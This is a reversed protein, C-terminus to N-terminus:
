VCQLSSHLGFTYTGRHCGCLLGSVPCLPVKSELDLRTRADQCRQWEVADIAEGAQKRMCLDTYSDSLAHVEAYRDETYEAQM